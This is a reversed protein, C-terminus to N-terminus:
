LICYTESKNDSPIGTKNRAYATFHIAWNWETNKM